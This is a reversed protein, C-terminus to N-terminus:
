SIAQLGINGISNNEISIKVLGRKGELGNNAIEIAGTHSLKNYVLRFL